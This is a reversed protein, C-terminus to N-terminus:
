SGAYISSASVLLDGLISSETPAAPVFALFRPHDTSITAPALVDGFVRLAEDGGIGEDTITRGAAASLQESTRPGDLPPPDMRVRRLAYDVVADALRDGEPSPRHM